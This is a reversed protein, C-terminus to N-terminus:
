EHFIDRELEEYIEMDPTILKALADRMIMEGTNGCATLGLLKKGNICIDNSASKMDDPANGRKVSDCMAKDIISLMEEKKEPKGVSNCWKILVDDSLLYSEINRRSLVKVGKMALDKIEEPSRDDRDILKIIRSQPSLSHIFSVIQKEKEVNDCNGLSYFM